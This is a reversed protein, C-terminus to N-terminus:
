RFVGETARENDLCRRTEGRTEKGKGLGKKQKEVLIEFSARLEELRDPPVVERLVIYGDDLLQQPDVKM